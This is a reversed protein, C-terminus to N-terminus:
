QQALGLEGNIRVSAPHGFIFSFFMDLIQCSPPTEFHGHKPTDHPRRKVVSEIPGAAMPHELCKHTHMNEHKLFGPLPAHPLFSFM